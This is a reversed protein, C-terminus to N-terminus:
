PEFNNPAWGNEMINKMGVNLQGSILMWRELLTQSPQPVVTTEQVRCDSVEKGKTDSWVVKNKSSSKRQYDRERRKPKEIEKKSERIKAQVFEKSNQNPLGAPHGLKQRLSKNELKSKAPIKTEKKDTNKWKSCTTSRQTTKSKDLTVTITQTKPLHPIAMITDDDSRPKKIQSLYGNFYQWYVCKASLHTNGTTTKVKRLRKISLWQQIRPHM